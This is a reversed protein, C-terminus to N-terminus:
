KKVLVQEALNELSGLEKGVKELNAPKQWGPRAFFTWGDPDVPAYPPKM